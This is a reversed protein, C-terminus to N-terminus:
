FANRTALKAFQPHVAAFELRDVDGDGDTDAAFFLQFAEVSPKDGIHFLHWIVFEERSIRGDGDLDGGSGLFDSGAILAPARGAGGNTIWGDGSTASVGAITLRVRVAGDSAILEEAVKVTDGVEVFGIKPSGKDAGVRMVSRLICIMDNGSVSIRNAWTQQPHNYNPAPGSGSPPAVDAAPLTVETSPPTACTPSPPPARDNVDEHATVDVVPLREEISPPTECSPSPPPTHDNAREASGTARLNWLAARGKEQVSSSAPFRKLATVVLSLGGGELIAAQQVDALALNALAGCGKEQVFEVAPHQRLTSLVAAVGGEAGIAAHCGESTEGGALTWLAACSKWGLTASCKHAGSMARVVATVGGAAVIRTRNQPQRHALNGLASTAQEQLACSGPHATMAQIIAEVGGAAGIELRAQAGFGLKFLVTCAAQQIAEETAHTRMYEVVSSAAEGELVRQHQDVVRWQRLENLLSSEAAATDDGNGKDLVEDAVGLPSAPRHLVARPKKAPEPAQPAPGHAPRPSSRRKARQPKSSSRRTASRHSPQALQPSDVGDFVASTDAEATDHHLPASHTGEPAIRRIESPRLWLRRDSFEVLAEDHLCKIVLGGRAYPELPPKGGWGHQPNVIASILSVNEGPRYAPSGTREAPSSSTLPINRQTLRRPLVHAQHSPLNQQFGRSAKLRRDSALHRTSNRMVERGQEIVRQVTGATDSFPIPTSPASTQDGAEESPEAVLAPLKSERASQHRTAPPRSRTVEAMGGWGVGIRGRWRERNEITTARERLWVLGSAGTM